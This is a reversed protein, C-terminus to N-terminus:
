WSLSRGEKGVRREESRQGASIPCSIEHAHVMKRHFGAYGPFSPRLPESHVTAAISENRLHYHLEMVSMSTSHGAQLVLTDPSTTPATWTWVGQNQLSPM